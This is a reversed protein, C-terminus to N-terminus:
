NTKKKSVKSVKSVKSRKVIFKIIKFSLCMSILVVATLFAIIDIAQRQFVNLDLAPSRLYTASDPNRMLWETWWVAREMPTEPQDRFSKSFREMSSRLVENERAHKIADAFTINNVNKLSYGEAIGIKTSKEM